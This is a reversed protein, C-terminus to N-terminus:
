KNEYDVLCEQSILNEQCSDIINHLNGFTTKQFYPIAIDVFIFLVILFKLIDYKPLKTQFFLFLGSIFIFLLILIKWNDIYFILSTTLVFLDLRSELIKFHLLYILSVILVITFHQSYRMWKTPSLIWFWLYSAITSCALPIAIQGFFNDIESKNKIILYVFFIPIISIRILDYNNWSSVESIIDSNEIGVSQHGVILSFLNKIYDFINGNEYRSNVLILWSFLPISFFLSDNAFTRLKKENFLIIIYFIVFPLFTLLKGFFISFSFLIMALSRHKNFIYISNIFLIVSAFEGIMYLSGQWWPILILSFSNMFLLFKYESKYIKSIAFSLFLQLLLIWYFNSIRAIVLKSTLNWGIVGGVASIPGSTLFVSYSGGIFDGANFDFTEFFSVNSSLSIYEDIFKPIRVAKTRIYDFLYYNQIILAPFLLYKFTKHTNQILYRIIKKFKSFINIYYKKKIFRYACFSGFIILLIALGIDFITTISTRFGGEVYHHCESFSNVTAADGWFNYLNIPTFNPDIDFVFNSGTVKQKQYGAPIDGCIFEIEEINM